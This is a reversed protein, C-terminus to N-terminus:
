EEEKEKDHEVAKYDVVQKTAKDLFNIRALEIDDQEFSVGYEDEVEEFVDEFGLTEFNKIQHPQVNSTNLTINGVLIHNRTIILGEYEKKVRKIKM